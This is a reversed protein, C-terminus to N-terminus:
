VQYGIIPATPAPHPGTQRALHSPGPSVRALDLRRQAEVRREFGALGDRISAEQRAESERVLQAARELVAADNHPVALALSAKLAEIENQHRTEQEALRRAIEADADTRGLRFSMRGDEYRLESGSLGIAAGAALLLAAAAALYPRALPTSPARAAMRRVAPAKWAQLDRRVRRLDATEQRCEACT